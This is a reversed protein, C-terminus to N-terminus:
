VLMKGVLEVGVETAESQLQGCVWPSQGRKGSFAEPLRPQPHSSLPDSCLDRMQTPPLDRTEWGSLSLPKGLTM